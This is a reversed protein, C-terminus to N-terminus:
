RACHCRLRRDRSQLRQTGSSRARCLVRRPERSRKRAFNKSVRIMGSRISCKSYRNTEFKHKLFREVEATFSQAPRLEPSDMIERARQVAAVYDETELSVFSRRGNVQKALWYTRGRLYIGKVRGKLV